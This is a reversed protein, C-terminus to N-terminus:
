YDSDERMQTMMASPDVFAKGTEVLMWAWRQMGTEKCVLIDKKPTQDIINQLQDYYEETENDDYDSTPAYAQVITINLPVARLRITILRSSVPRRGMVTSVIDKHVLFGLGHEQKDEKGSFFIKHGEETTTEGFNKRRM